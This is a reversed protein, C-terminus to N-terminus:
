FYYYDLGPIRVWYEYEDMIKHLTKHPGGEWTGTYTSSLIENRTFSTGSCQPESLTQAMRPSLPFCCIMNPVANLGRKVIPVLISSM